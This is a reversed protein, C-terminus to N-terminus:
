MLQGWCGRVYLNSFNLIINLSEVGFFKKKSVYFYLQIWIGPNSQLGWCHNKLGWFRQLRLSRLSRLLRLSRLSRSLRLEDFFNSIRITQDDRAGLQGIDTVKQPISWWFDLKESIDSRKETLTQQPWGIYNKKFVPSTPM